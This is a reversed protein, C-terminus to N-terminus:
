QLWLVMGVVIIVLIVSIIAVWNATKVLWQYNRTISDRRECSVLALFKLSIPLSINTTNKSTSIMSSAHDTLGQNAEGQGLCRSGQDILFRREQIGEWLSRRTNMAPMSTTIPMAISRYWPLLASLMASWIRMFKSVWVAASVRMADPRVKWNSRVDCSFVSSSNRPVVASILCFSVKMRPLSSSTRDKSNAKCRMSSVTWQSLQGQFPFLGLGLLSLTPMKERGDYLSVGGCDTNSLCAAAAPSASAKYKCSSPMNASRVTSPFANKFGPSSSITIPLRCDATSRLNSSRSSFVNLCFGDPDPPNQYIRHAFISLWNKKEETARTALVVFLRMGM